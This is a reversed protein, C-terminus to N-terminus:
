LKLRLLATGSGTTISISAIQDKTLATGSPYSIQKGPTVQWSGLTQSSGQRDTVVLDYTAGPPYDFSSEYSCHLTIKTGWSVATVEASASVPSDVVATMALPHGAPSSPTSNTTRVLLTTVLVLCAAALVAAGSVLWRRRRRQERVASLLRPLLLDSPEYQIADDAFAEPSASGLLRGVEELSAVSAACDDCESLHAAFERREDTDLTGLVYAADLHAFRDEGTM